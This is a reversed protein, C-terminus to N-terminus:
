KPLNAVNIPCHQASFFVVAEEPRNRVKSLCSSVFIDVM